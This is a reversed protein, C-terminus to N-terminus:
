ALDAIGVGLEEACKLLLAFSGGPRRNEMADVIHPPAGIKEALQTQTLGRKKRWVGLPDPETALAMGDELSIIEDRGSQVSAWIVGAAYAHDQENGVYPGPAIHLVLIADATEKYLLTFTGIEIANAPPNCAVIPQLLLHNNRGILRQFEVVIKIAKDRFHWMDRGATATFRIITGM